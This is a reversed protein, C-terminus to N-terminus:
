FNKYKENKFIKKMPSFDFANLKIITAIFYRM